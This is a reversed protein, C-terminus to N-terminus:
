SCVTLLQQQLQYTFVTFLLDHLRMNVILQMCHLWTCENKILFWKHSIISRSKWFQLFKPLLNESPFMVWYILFLPPPQCQLKTKRHFLHTSLRTWVCEHCINVWIVKKNGAKWAEIGRRLREMMGRVDLSSLSQHFLTSIPPIKHCCPHNVNEIRLRESQSRVIQSSISQIDKLSLMSLFRTNFVFCDFLLPKSSTIPNVLLESLGLFKNSLSCTKCNFDWKLCDRYEVFSQPFQQIIGGSILVHENIKYLTASVFM